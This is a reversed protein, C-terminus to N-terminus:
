IANSSEQNIVCPTSNKDLGAEFHQETQWKVVNPGSLYIKLPSINVPQAVNKAFVGAKSAICPMLLLFAFTSISRAPHQFSYRRSKGVARRWEGTM